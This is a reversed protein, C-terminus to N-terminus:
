ARRLLWSNTRYRTASVMPFRKSFSERQPAWCRRYGNSGGALEATSWHVGRFFDGELWIGLPMICGSGWNAFTRRKQPMVWNKLWQIWGKRCKKWFPLRLRRRVQALVPPKQDIFNKDTLTPGWIGFIGIFFCVSLQDLGVKFFFQTSSFPIECEIPPVMRKQIPFPWPWPPVPPDVLSGLNIITIWRPNFRTSVIGYISIM